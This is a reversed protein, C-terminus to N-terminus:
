PCHPLRRGPLRRNSCFDRRPLCRWRVLIRDTPGVNPLRSRDGTAIILLKFKEAGLEYINRTLHGAIDMRRTV